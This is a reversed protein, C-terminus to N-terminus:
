TLKKLGQDSALQRKTRKKVEKIDEAKRTREPYIGTDTLLKRMQKNKDVYEETMESVSDLNKSKIGEQTLDKALTKARIEISDDFDALPRDKSIGKAKRIDKTTLGGYYAKDGKSIFTGLQMLGREYVVDKLGVEAKTYETREKLRKLDAEDATIYRGDRVAVFTKVLIKAFEKGNVSNSRALLWLAAEEFIIAAGNTNFPKLLSEVASKGSTAKEWRSVERLEDYTLVKYGEGEEYGGTDRLKRLEEKATSAGNLICALQKAFIANRGDIKVIILSVGQSDKKEGDLYIDIRM